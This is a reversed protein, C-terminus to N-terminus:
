IQQSGTKWMEPLLGRSMTTRWEISQKGVDLGNVHGTPVFLVDLRDSKRLKGTQAMMMKELGTCLRGLQAKRQNRQM